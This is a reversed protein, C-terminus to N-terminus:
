AALPEASSYFEELGTLVRQPELSTCLIARWTKVTAEAAGSSALYWGVHKRANKLGLERGYHILMADVHEIATDRQVDLSPDGPDRGTSLFTAIRGPMWPAGYAGRGVMVGRAGSAAIANQADAISLIDGNVLVPLSTAEVVPRVGSWDATGKFFQCRTRGHVTILQVGEAEARRALEAANRTQDDWGLRMKLTVPISVASVVSRILAQAHDLNRMLASGSLKGTVERAPCGM